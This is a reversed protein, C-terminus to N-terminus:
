DIQVAGKQSRLGNYVAHLIGAAPGDNVDGGDEPKNPQGINGGIGGALATDPQEGLGRGNFASFFAVVDPYVRHM